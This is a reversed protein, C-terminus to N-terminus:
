RRPARTLARAAGRAPINRVSAKSGRTGSGPLADHTDPRQPVGRFPSVSGEGPGAAAAAARGAGGRDGSRLM